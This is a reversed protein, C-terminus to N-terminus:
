SFIEKKDKLFYLNTLISGHFFYEKSILFNYIEHGSPNSPVFDDAEVIILRPIYKDFDLSKLIKLDNGEADISLFDFASPANLQELITTLLLSKMKKRNTIKHGAELANKIHIIDGTSLAENDIEVYEIVGEIDSVFSCLAKDHPRIRKHKKILTDNPDICIGRWGRRYFLFTNSAFLPENCGVEVYFGKHSILPKLLSEILRDEDKYGYSLHSSRGMFIRLLGHSFYKVSRCFSFFPNRWTFFQSFSMTCERIALGWVTFVARTYARKYLYPALIKQAQKKLKESFSLTAM